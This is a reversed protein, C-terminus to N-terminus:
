GDVLAHSCVSVIQTGVLCWNFALSEEDLSQIHKNLM